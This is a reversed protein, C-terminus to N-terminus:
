EDSGLLEEYEIGLATALRHVSRPSPRTPCRGNKRKAWGREWEQVQTWSNGMREALARQTLGRALRVARLRTGSFQTEINAV